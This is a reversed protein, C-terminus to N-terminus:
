PRPGGGFAAPNAPLRGAPSSGDDLGGDDELISRKVHDAETEGPRFTARVAAWITWATILFAGAWVAWMWPAADAVGHGHEALVPLAPFPSV